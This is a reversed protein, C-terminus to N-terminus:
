NRLLYEGEPLIGRNCLEHLIYRLIGPRIVGERFERLAETASIGLRTPYISLQIWAGNNVGLWETCDYERNGYVEFILKNLDRATFTMRTIEVMPISPTPM